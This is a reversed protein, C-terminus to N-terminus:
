KFIHNILFAIVCIFRVKMAVLAIAQDYHELKNPFFTMNYSLGECWHITIPECTFLSHGQSWHIVLLILLGVLVQSSKM